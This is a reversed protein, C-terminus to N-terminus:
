KCTVLDYNGIWTGTIKKAVDSMSTTEEILISSYNFDLSERPDVTAPVKQGYSVFCLTIIFFITQIYKM